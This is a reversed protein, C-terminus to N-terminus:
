YEGWVKYVRLESVAAYGMSTGDQAVVKIYYDGTLTSVDLETVANSFTKTKVANATTETKTGGIALVSCNSDHNHGSNSWLVKIKKYRTLSIPINTVYTRLATASEEYCQLYLHDSNKSQAGTGSSNGVEWGGTSDIREDGEIYFGVRHEGPVILKDALKQGSLLM